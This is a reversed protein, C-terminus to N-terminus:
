SVSQYGPKGTRGSRADPVSPHLGCIIGRARAQVDTHRVEQSSTDDNSHMICIMHQPTTLAYGWRRANAIFSVEERIFETINRLSNAHASSGGM